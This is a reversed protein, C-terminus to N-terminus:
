QGAFPDSGNGNTQPAPKNPCTRATHPGGCVSCTLTKKQATGTVLETLERDIEDRKDLLARIRQTDM